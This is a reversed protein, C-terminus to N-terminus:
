FLQYIILHIYLETTFISKIKFLLLYNKVKDHLICM